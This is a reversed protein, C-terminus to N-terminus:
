GVLGLIAGTQAGQLDKRGHRILHVRDPSIKNTQLLTLISIEKRIKSTTDMIAKEKSLQKQQQKRQYHLKKLKRLTERDERLKKKLEASESSKSYENDFKLHSNHSKYHKGSKRTRWDVNVGNFALLYITHIKQIPPQQPSGMMM